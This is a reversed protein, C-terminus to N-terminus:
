GKSIHCSPKHVKRSSTRTTFFLFFFFFAHIRTQDDDFVDDRTLSISRHRVISVVQCERSVLVCMYTIRTKNHSRYVGNDGAQSTYFNARIMVILPAGPSLVERETYSTYCLTSRPGWPGFRRRVLCHAHIASLSLFFFM